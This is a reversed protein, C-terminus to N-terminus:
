RVSAALSSSGCAGPRSIPPSIALSSTTGPVSLATSRGATIRSSVNCHVRAMPPPTSAMMPLIALNAGPVLLDVNDQLVDQNSWLLTEPKLGFKGAIGFITDGAQVLYSIVSNRPRDPIITFPVLQRDIRVLGDNWATDSIDDVAKAQLTQAGSRADALPISSIAERIPGLVIMAIGICM